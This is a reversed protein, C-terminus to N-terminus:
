EFTTIMNVNLFVLPDTQNSLTLKFLYTFNYHFQRGIKPPLKKKLRIETIDAQENEIWGTVSM